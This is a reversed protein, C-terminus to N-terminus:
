WYMERMRDDISPPSVPRLKEPVFGEPHKQFHLCHKGGQPHEIELIYDGTSFGLTDFYMKVNGSVKVEVLGQEVISQTNKHVLQYNGYDSKQYQSKPLWVQLQQCDPYHIFIAELLGMQDAHEGTNELTHIEIIGTHETM